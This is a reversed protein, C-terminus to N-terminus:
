GGDLRSIGGSDIGYAGSNAYQSDSLLTAVYDGYERASVPPKNYRAFITEVSVGQRRAYEGAVHRILDTNGMMQMPVITQFTIDLGREGAISQAYEALFWLMRKAGSYSGSLPAGLKAAGSSVILVRSGHLPAKLAAQIGYFGGKVDTDWVTSFTEWTLEDIAGMVPTAGANLILFRPRIEAVVAEILAADTADAARVMVGHRTIEALRERDRAIVTV